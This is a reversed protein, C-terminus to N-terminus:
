NEEPSRPEARNLFDVIPQLIEALTDTEGDILAELTEAHIQAETPKM